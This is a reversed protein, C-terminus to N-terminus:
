VWYFHRGMYKGIVHVLIDISMSNMIAESQFSDLHEEVTSYIFWPMIVCLFM